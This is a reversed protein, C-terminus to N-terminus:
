RSRGESEPLPEHGGESDSKSRTAPQGAGVQESQQKKIGWRTEFGHFYFPLLKPLTQADSGEDAIMSLVLRDGHYLGVMVERVADVGRRKLENLLDDAFRRAEQARSHSQSAHQGLELSEREADGLTALHRRYVDERWKRYRSFYIEAKKPEREQAWGEPMKQAQFDEEVDAHTLWQDPHNM